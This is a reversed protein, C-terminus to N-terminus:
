LFNDDQGFILSFTNPLTYYLPKQFMDLAGSDRTRFDIHAQRCHRSFFWNILFKAKM